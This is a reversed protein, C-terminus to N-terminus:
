AAQRLASLIEEPKYPKTLFGLAQIELAMAQVMIDSRGTLFLIPLKFTAGLAEAAEMGTSADQLEMDMLAVDPKTKAALKLADTMTKAHGVVKHGAGELIETLDLAIMQEDEVIVIRLPM